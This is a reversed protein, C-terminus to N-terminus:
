LLEKAYVLAQSKISYQEGSYPPLPKEKRMIMQTKTAIELANGIDFRM